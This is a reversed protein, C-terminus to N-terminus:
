SLFNTAQTVIDQSLDQSYHSLLSNIIAKKNTAQNAFWAATRALPSDTCNQVMEWKNEQLLEELAGQHEKDINRNVTQLAQQANQMQTLEKLMQLQKGMDSTVGIQILQKVVAIEAQKALKALFQRARVIRGSSLSSSWKKNEIIKTILVQPNLDQIIKKLDDLDDELTQPDDLPSLKDWLDALVPYKIDESLSQLTKQASNMSLLNQLALQRTETTTIM